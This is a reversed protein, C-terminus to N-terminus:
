RKGAGTVEREFDEHLTYGQRRVTHILKISNSRDVKKRLYNIYVDVINTFNDLIPGWVQEAIMTRSVVKNSNSMLYELLNYEKGTMHIEIGNRWVRHFVPDLRLDAIQIEAGRNQKSRRILAKVRALLEAFAFPKALYDDSGSDLGSVIEETTGRATLVLVPIQSGSERLAKIVTLGDKEPLGVDMVVLCYEGTLAQKLGEVGDHTVTVAYDDEELGRKIFGAIKKEDEVVLIKM